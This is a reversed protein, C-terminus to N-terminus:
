IVHLQESREASLSAPRSLTCHRGHGGPGCKTPLTTCVSGKWWKEKLSQQWAEHYIGVVIVKEPQLTDGGHYGLYYCVPLNITGFSKYGKLLDLLCFDVGTQLSLVSFSHYTGPQIPLRSFLECAWVEAKSPM